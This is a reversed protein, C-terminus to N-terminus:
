ILNVDCHFSEGVLHNVDVTKLTHYQIMYDNSCENRKYRDRFLGACGISGGDTTRAVGPSKEDLCPPINQTNELNTRIEM